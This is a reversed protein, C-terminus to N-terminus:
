TDADPGPCTARPSSVNWSHETSGAPGQDWLAEEVGEKRGGEREEERERERGAERLSLVGKVLTDPKLQGHGPFNCSREGKRKKVLIVCESRTPEWPRGPQQM